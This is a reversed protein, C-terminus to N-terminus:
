VWRSAYMNSEKTRTELRAFQLGEALMKFAGNGFSEFLARCNRLWWAPM